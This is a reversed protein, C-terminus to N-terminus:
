KNRVLTTVLRIWVDTATPFVRGTLWVGISGGMPPCPYWREVTGLHQEKKLLREGTSTRRFFNELLHEGTSTRGSSSNQVPKPIRHTVCLNKHLQHFVYAVVINSILLGRTSWLDLYCYQPGFVIFILLNRFFNLHLIHIWM